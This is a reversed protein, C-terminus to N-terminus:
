RSLQLEASLILNLGTNSATIEKAENLERQCIEPLSEFDGIVHM